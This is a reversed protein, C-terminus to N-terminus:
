SNKRTYELDDEEGIELMVQMIKRKLRKRFIDSNLNRFENAILEGFADWQDRSTTPIQVPTSVATTDMIALRSASPPRFSTSQSSEAPIPESASKFVISELNEISSPVPEEEKATIRYDLKNIMKKKQACKAFIDAHKNRLHSSLNTANGSTKIVRQCHLCKATVGTLKTYNSKVDM